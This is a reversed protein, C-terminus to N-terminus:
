HLDTQDPIETQTYKIRHKTIFNSLDDETFYVSNKGLRVCVLQGRKVHEMVTQRCMSLMTAVDKLPILLRKNGRKDNTRSM